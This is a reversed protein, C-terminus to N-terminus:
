WIFFIQKTLCLLERYSYVSALPLGRWCQEPWGRAQELLRLLLPQSRIQRPGVLLGGLGRGINGLLRQNGLPFLLPLSGKLALRHDLCCGSGVSEFGGGGCRGGGGGGVSWLLRWAM